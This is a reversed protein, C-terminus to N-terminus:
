SRQYQPSEGEVSGDADQNWTKGDPYFYQPPSVLLGCNPHNASEALMTSLFDPEAWDDSEAIWIWEGTALGIGKKWQSFASGTNVENFVVHSVHPDNRYSEIIDRSGDTSRDDLFILEFDQFSQNLVSDIRQRLFPAHNYNPIIISVLPM